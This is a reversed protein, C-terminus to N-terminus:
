TGSSGFMGSGRSTSEFEEEGAVPEFDVQYIPEVVAQGIRMGRTIQVPEPTFNVLIMFVEGIFGNDITGIGNPMLLGLKLGTSSRNRITWGFGPELQMKFGCSIKVRQMPQILVDECSRLDFASDTDHAYAM